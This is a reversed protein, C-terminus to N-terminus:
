EMCIGGLVLALGTIETEPIDLVPYEANDSIALLFGKEGQKIRKLLLGQERTGIVHIENWQIFTDNSIKRCAVYDGQNYRPSMSNGRVPVMFDVKGEFMPINVYAMIDKQEIAFGASGFGAAVETSLIPILGDIPENRLEIANLTNKEILMEGKGTLLWTPNMEPYVELIKALFIDSAGSNQHSRDIFGKKLGTKELFVSPKIGQYDIFDIIRKRSTEM